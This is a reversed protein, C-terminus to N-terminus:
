SGTRVSKWVNSTFDQMLEDHVGGICTRVSTGEAPLGQEMAAIFKCDRYERKLYRVAEVTVAGAPLEGVARDWIQQYASDRPARSIPLMNVLSNSLKAAVMAVAYPDRVTEALVRVPGIFQRIEAASLPKADTPNAVPVVSALKGVKIAASKGGLARLTSETLSISVTTFTRLSKLKVFRGAPMTKTSGDAATVILRIDSDKGPVYATGPNPAKRHEQLCFSSFEAACLGNECTLKTPEASAILGLIQSAAHARPSLMLAAVASAAISIAISHRNM